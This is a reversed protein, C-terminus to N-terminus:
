TVQRKETWEFIKRASERERGGREQEKWGSVEARSMLIGEIMSEFMMMRRRFDGGWKREGIGWVCGVAKNAKRL